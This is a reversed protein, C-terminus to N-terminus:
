SHYLFIIYIEKSKKFKKPVLFKYSDVLAKNKHWKLKISEIVQEKSESMKQLDSCYSMQLYMLPLSSRQILLMLHLDNM